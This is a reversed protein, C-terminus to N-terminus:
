AIGQKNRLLRASIEESSTFGARPRNQELMLRTMEVQLEEAATSRTMMQLIAQLVAVMDSTPAQGPVAQAAGDTATNVTAPPAVPSPVQIQPSAAFARADQIAQSQSVAAGYQVNNFKDNAKQVKEAAATAQVVTEASKKENAAGIKDLTLSRDENLKEVVAVNETASDILGNRASQFMKVLGSDKPLIAELLSVPGSLMSALFDKIAFNMFAVFTDFGNQLRTGFSEGFVFGLTDIILNPIASFFASVMGGIRAMIGGEPNLANSVTGTFLETLASGWAVVKSFAPIMKMLAGGFGTFTGAFSTLFPGVKSGINAMSGFAGSFMKPLSTLFPGAKSIAGSMASMAGSFLRSAAAMPQVAATASSAGLTLVKTLGGLIPGRFAFLVAGGIASLISNLPSEILGSGLTMMKGVIQGFAGVHQGFDKNFVEASKQALQAPRNAEMTQGFASGKLAEGLIDIVNQDGFGSTQYISQTAADLSGAIRRLEEGEATSINRGKMILQAAREGEAGMGAFGALQRVRGASEFRSKVTEGRQAIMADALKKSAEAALGMRQGTTTIQMLEQIRANRQEPGLGVLERQTSESESVSKVLNSFENATMNTSHRLQEFVGIQKSIEGTLASQSVGMMTLSNGVSAQLAKAEVGFVGLVALQKNAASTLDDFRELSGSRAALANNEKLIETYKQLSIGSLLANKYLTTLAAASGMGVSAISFFDVTMKKAAEGLKSFSVGLLATTSGLNLLNAATQRMLSQTQPPLPAVPAVGAGRVNQNPVGTLASGMQIPQMSTMFKAMQGNLASFGSTTKGVESDLGKFSKDLSTVTSDLDKMSEAVGKFTKEDSKQFRAKLAEKAKSASNSLSRGGFIGSGKLIKEINELTKLIDEDM